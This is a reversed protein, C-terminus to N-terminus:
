LENIRYAQPFHSQLLTKTNFDQTDEAAHVFAVLNDHQLIAARQRDNDLTEGPIYAKGRGCQVLRM